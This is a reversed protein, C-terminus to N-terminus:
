RPRSQRIQSLVSPLHNGHSCQFRCVSLKLLKEGLDALTAGLVQRCRWISRRRGTTFCRLSFAPLQLRLVQLIVADVSPELIHGETLNLRLSQWGIGDNPPMVSGDLFIGVMQGLVHCVPFPQNEQPSAARHLSGERNGYHADLDGTPTGAVENGHGRKHILYEGSVGHVLLIAGAEFM